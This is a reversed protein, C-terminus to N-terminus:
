TIFFTFFDSKKMLIIEVEFFLSINIIEYIPGRISTYTQTMSAHM